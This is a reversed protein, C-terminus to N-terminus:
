NSKKCSPTCCLCATEAIYVWIERLMIEVHVAQTRVRRQLLIFPLYLYDRSIYVACCLALEYSRYVSLAGRGVSKQDSDCESQQERRLYYHFFWACDSYRQWLRSVPRCFFERWVWQCTCAKKSVIGRSYFRMGCSNNSCGSTPEPTRLSGYGSPTATPRIVLFLLTHRRGQAPNAFTMM